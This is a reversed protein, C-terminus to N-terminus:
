RTRLELLLFARLSPDHVHEQIARRGAEGGDAYHDALREAYEIWVCNACGSMCCVTPPSRRSVSLATVAPLLPRQLRQSATQASM